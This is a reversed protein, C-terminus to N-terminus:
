NHSDDRESMKQPTDDLTRKLRKKAKGPEDENQMYKHQDRHDDNDGDDM